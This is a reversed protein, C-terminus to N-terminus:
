KSHLTLYYHLSNNTNEGVFQLGIRQHFCWRLRNFKSANAKIRERETLNPKNTQNVFAKDLFRIADDENLVPTDKIPRAM